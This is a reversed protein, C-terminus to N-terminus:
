CVLRDGLMDELSAGFECFESLQRLEAVFTAVTEGPKQTRSHFQFRQVIVSPKPTYHSKVLVVLKDYSKEAPKKPSSLNRILKYTAPGSVTLLVARKKEPDEIGNAIFYFELREVYTAWAEHSPDFQNIKGHTVM